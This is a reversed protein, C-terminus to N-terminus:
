NGVYPVKNMMFLYVLAGVAFIDSPKGHNQKCVVEPAMFGFTGADNRKNEPKIERALGFDTLRLYGDSDFVLNAPKIDKHIVNHKHVDELAQILCATFFRTHSM